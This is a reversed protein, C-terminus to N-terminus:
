TEDRQKKEISLRPKFEEAKFVTQPLLNMKSLFSLVINSDKKVKKNIPSVKKGPKIQQM